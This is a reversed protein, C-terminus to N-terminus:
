SSTELFSHQAGLSKSLRIPCSSKSLGRIEARFVSWFRRKGTIEGEKFNM